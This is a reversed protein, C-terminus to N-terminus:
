RPAFKATRRRRLPLGAAVMVVCAKGDPQRAASRLTTVDVAGRILEAYVSDLIAHVDVVQVGRDQVQQAHVVLLEGETVATAIEAEGINVTVHDM